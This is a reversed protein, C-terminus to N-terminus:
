RWRAKTVPIAAQGPSMGTVISSLNVAEFNGNGEVDLWGKHSQSLTAHNLFVEEGVQPQRTASCCNAPVRLVSTGERQWPLRPFFKHVVSNDVHLEITSGSIAICKGIGIDFSL